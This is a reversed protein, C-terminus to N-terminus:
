DWTRHYVRPPDNARHIRPRFKERLHRYRSNSLSRIVSLIVGIGTDTPGLPTTVERDLFGKFNAEARIRRRLFSSLLIFFLRRPPVSRYFFGHIARSPLSLRFSVLPSSVTKRTSRPPPEASNGRCASADIRTLEARPRAAHLRIEHSRTHSAHSPTFVCQIRTRHFM